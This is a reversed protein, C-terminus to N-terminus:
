KGIRCDEIQVAGMKDRIISMEKTIVSRCYGIEASIDAQCWGRSFCLEFIKRQRDTLQLTDMIQNFQEKTAIDLLEKETM